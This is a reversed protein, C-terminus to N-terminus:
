AAGGLGTQVALSLSAVGVLALVSGCFAWFYDILEFTANQYTMVYM